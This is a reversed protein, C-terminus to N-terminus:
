RRIQVSSSRSTVTVAGSGTISRPLFEEREGYANIVFTLPDFKLIVFDGRQAM